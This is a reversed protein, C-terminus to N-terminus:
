VLKQHLIIPPITLTVLLSFALPPLPESQEPPSAVFWQESHTSAATTARFFDGSFSWHLYWEVHFKLINVFALV